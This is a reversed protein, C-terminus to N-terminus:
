VATNSLTGSSYPPPEDGNVKEETPVYGENVEGTTAEESNGM